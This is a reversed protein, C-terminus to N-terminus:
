KKDNLIGGYFHDRFIVYKNPQLDPDNLHFHKKLFPLLKPSPRDYAWNGADNIISYNSSTTTHNSCEQLMQNFLKIGIGSRQKTDLVYFDLLCYPSFDKVIGKKSYFYLKKNGPICYKIYGIMENNECYILLHHGINDNNNNNNDANSTTASDILLQCSTIPGNLEQVIGSKIGLNDLTTKFTEYNSSEMKLLSDSNYFSIGDTFM